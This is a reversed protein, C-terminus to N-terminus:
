KWTRGQKISQIAGRSVGYKKALQGFSLPSNRIEDAQEQTLKAIKMARRKHGDDDRGKARMDQMNSLPTGLCLHDPNVCGIVDCTHCVLMGAPIDGRFLRWAARHAGELKGNLWFGGYKPGAGTWLWCGSFPIREVRREFRDLAHMDSRSM